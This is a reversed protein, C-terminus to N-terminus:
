VLVGSNRLYKEAKLILICSASHTIKSSEVMQVVDAIPVKEIQLTEGEDLVGVAASLEMALFLYNPSSVVTTFPDVVGLDVWVKAELNLEERLERKAAELPTEGEDIGGSMLELTERAVGYKYERTLFVNLDKDLALVTSGPRMTVVGFVGPSGGPRIVQDERVSIWPNKYVENSDILRFPNNNNQM